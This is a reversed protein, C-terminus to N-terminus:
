RGLAEVGHADSRTPFMLRHFLKWWKTRGVYIHNGEDGVNALERMLYELTYNGDM